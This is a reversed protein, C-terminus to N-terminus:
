PFIQQVVCPLRYTAGSVGLLPGRNVVLHRLQLGFSRPPGACSCSKLTHCLLCSGRGNQPLRAVDEVVIEFHESKCFARPMLILSDANKELDQLHLLGCLM